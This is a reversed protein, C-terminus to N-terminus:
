AKRRRFWIVFGAIFLIIPIFYQFSHFITWALFVSKSDNPITVNVDKLPMPQITILKEDGALWNIMNIGLDLNGGSTIFSNSLFAANGIVIVRQGKEEFKRSFAIGINIPGKKDKNKDFVLKQDENKGKGELWGSGAVEILKSVEWGNEYTGKASVEHAGNYLTRLMFSNTTPHDGYFTAFSVNENAGFQSSSPDIVKGESVNLGLYEAVNELGRLNDDDLLWLINGGSQLYKVIKISEVKSVNVQPSAIVLLRGQKPVESLVTLDPNSFKFGKKELQKGFEGLDNNKVGILNKEGHGDLYLIPQENTRTLRVLLNTLDQEAFPPSIHESRKNYEVIVEGDIRIGMEQALKPEEVPSIFKINIDSKTRQYRAIFNIIGQRFTDGNNVDDKTAFVTLNIPHPMNQLVEISGQTLTNRNAQTVDKTLVFQNSLYGCLIVLLVFFLVFFWNQILLQLKLKSNNKM